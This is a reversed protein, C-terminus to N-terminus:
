HVNKQQIYLDLFEVCIDEYPDDLVGMKDSAEKKWKTANIPQQDGDFIKGENEIFKFEDM